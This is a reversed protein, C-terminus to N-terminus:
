GAKKLGKLAPRLAARLQKKARWLRIRINARSQGLRTAIESDTMEEFYFLVLPARYHERLNAIAARVTLAREKTEFEHLPSLGQAVPEFDVPRESLIVRNESRRRRLLDICYHCAVSALWRSFPQAPDYSKMARPLRLFIEAAADDADAGSQLYRRCINLVLPHYERYLDESLPTGEVPKEISM